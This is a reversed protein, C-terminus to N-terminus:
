QVSQVQTSYIPVRPPQSHDSILTHVICMAAIVPHQKRLRHARRMRHLRMMEGGARQTVEEEEKAGRRNLNEALGFWDSVDRDTTKM